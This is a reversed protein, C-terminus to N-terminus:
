KTGCGPVKCRGIDAVGAACSSGSSTDGDSGDSCGEAGTASAQITPSRTVPSTNAVGKCAGIQGLVPGQTGGVVNQSGPYIAWRESPGGCIYVGAGCQGGQQDGLCTPQEDARQQGGLRSLLQQGAAMGKAVWDAVKEDEVSVSLQGVVRQVAAPLEPIISRLNQSVGRSSAGSNSNDADAQKGAATLHDLVSLLAATVVMRCHSNSRTISQLIGSGGSCTKSGSGDMNRGDEGSSNNGHDASIANQEACQVLRRAAAAWAGPM